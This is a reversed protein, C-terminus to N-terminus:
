GQDRKQLHHILKPAVLYSMRSAFCNISIFITKTREYNKNRPRNMEINIKINKKKGSADNFIATILALSHIRKKGMILIINIRYEIQSM